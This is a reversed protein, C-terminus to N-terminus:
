AVVMALWCKRENRCKINASKGRDQPLRCAMPVGSELRASDEGKILQTTGENGVEDAALLWSSTRIGEDADLLPLPFREPRVHASEVFRSKFYIVKIM